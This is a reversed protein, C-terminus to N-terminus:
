QPALIWGVLVKLDEDKVHAQAPMPIAGWKGTSGDRISGALHAAAGPDDKYKARVASFAPGMVKNDVAHCALCANAQLLATPVSTQAAPAMAKVAPAGAAPKANPIIITDPIALTARKLM